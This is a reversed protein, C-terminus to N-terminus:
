FKLIIKGEEVAVEYTKLDVKAPGQTVKGTRVDFCSRHWPCTVQGDHFTGESLPGYRHTCFEQFAYLKGDLRAITMVNGDLDVRLTEGDKLSGADVVAVTGELPDGDESSVRITQRPTDARRRHRGAGIGDDFVIAGGLYGSIGIIGVGLISLVFPLIPTQADDLTPYRLNLNLAYLLMMGLNLWMHYTARKKAPHDARIDYWDALGATAALLSTVIGLAMTYFAGQVLPNGAEFSRITLPVRLQGLSLLEESAAAEAMAVAIMAALDLLLSLVFLGIPFHILAPHLPHKLWKGQLFDKIM